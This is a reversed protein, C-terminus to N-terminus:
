SRDVDILIRGDRDKAFLAQLAERNEELATSPM